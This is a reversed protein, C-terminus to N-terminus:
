QLTNNMTVASSSIPTEDVPLTEALEFLATDSIGWYIPIYKSSDFM